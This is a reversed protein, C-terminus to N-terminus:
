ESEELDFHVKYGLNEISERIHSRDPVRNSPVTFVVSSDELSVSINSVGNIRRMENTVAGVCSECFMGEVHFVVEREETSEKNSCGMLVIILLTTTLLFKM